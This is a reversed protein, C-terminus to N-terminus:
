ELAERAGSVSPDEAWRQYDENAKESMDNIENRDEESSIEPEPAM